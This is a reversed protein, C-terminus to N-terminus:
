ADASAGQLDYSHYHLHVPHVDWCIPVDHAVYQYHWMSFETDGFHSSWSVDAFRRHINRPLYVMGLGFLQCFPDGTTLFSAGRPSITGAGSGDWHRHAWVDEALNYADAYIRYPAVLVRNPDEAAHQAFHRLDEQGVAMDWELLLVDDNIALLAKYDHNEIILREIGDEVYSRGPPIRSPWSRVLRM